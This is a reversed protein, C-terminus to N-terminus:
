DETMKLRLFRQEVKVSYKLEYAPIGRFVADEIEAIEKELQQEDAYWALFTNSGGWLSKEDSSVGFLAYKPSRKGGKFRRSSMVKSCRAVVHENPSTITIIGTVKDSEAAKEQENGTEMLSDLSINLKRSLLLLKEAEPFGTGQEWKSVAQRSVDLMEALEEQSLHKEKRIKQLNEAFSM